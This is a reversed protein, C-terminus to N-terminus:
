LVKDAKKKNKSSPNLTPVIVHLLYLFRVSGIIFLKDHIDKPNKRDRSICNNQINPLVFWKRYTYFMLKANKNNIFIMIEDNSNM